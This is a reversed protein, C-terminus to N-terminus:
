HPRSHLRGRRDRDGYLCDTRRPMNGGGLFCWTGFDRCHAEKGEQSVVSLRVRGKQIYFVADAADGQSFIIQKKLSTLMTKGNGVTTLFNKPTFRPPQKRAM